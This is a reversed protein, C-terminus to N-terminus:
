IRYWTKGVKKTIGVKTRKNKFITWRREMDDWHQTYGQPITAPDLMPVDLGDKDWIFLHRVEKGM